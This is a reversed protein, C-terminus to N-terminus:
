GEDVAKQCVIKGTVSYLNILDNDGLKVDKQTEIKSIVYNVGEMILQVAAPFHPFHYTREVM